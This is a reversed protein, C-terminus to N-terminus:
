RLPGKAHGLRAALARLAQGRHSLANKTTASLESLRVGSPPHFFLPDYGFGGDGLAPWRLIGEVRGEAEVMVSGDPRVIVVHCVFAAAPEEVGLAELERILRANNEADSSGEGAYRASHIGPAGDLAEVCIGSDDALAPEGLHAAASAAKLIANDRFTAGDEVVPPLGAPVRVDWGLPALIQEIERAKHANGTAVYLRGTAAESV